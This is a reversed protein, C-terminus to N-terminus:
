LGFIIKPGFIYPFYDSLVPSFNGARSCTRVTDICAFGVGRGVPSAKTQALSRAHRSCAWVTGTVLVFLCVITSCPGVHRHCSSANFCSRMPPKM